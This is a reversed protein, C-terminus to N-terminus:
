SAGVGPKRRADPDVVTGVPGAADYTAGDGAWEGTVGIHASRPVRERDENLCEAM